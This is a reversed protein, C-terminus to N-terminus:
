IEGAFKLGPMMRPKKNDPRSLLSICATSGVNYARTAGGSIQDAPCNRALGFAFIKRLNRITRGDRWSDNRTPKESRRVPLGAGNVGSFSGRGNSGKRVPNGQGSRRLRTGVHRHCAASSVATMQSQRDDLCLPHLDGVGRGRRADLESRRFGPLYFARGSVAGRGGGSKKPLMLM